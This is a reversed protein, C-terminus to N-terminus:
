AWISAYINSEKNYIRGEFEKLTYELRDAVSDFDNNNTLISLVTQVIVNTRQTTHSDTIM